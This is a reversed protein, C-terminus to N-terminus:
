SSPHLPCTKSKTPACLTNLKRLTSIVDKPEGRRRVTVSADIMCAVWVLIVMWADGSLVLGLCATSCSLMLGRCKDRHAANRVGPMEIASVSHRM